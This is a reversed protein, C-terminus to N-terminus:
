RKSRTPVPANKESQVNRLSPYASPSLAVSDSPPRPAPNTNWCLRTEMKLVNAPM